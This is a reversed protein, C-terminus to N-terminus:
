SDIFRSSLIFGIYSHRHSSLSCVLVLLNVRLPSGRKKGGKWSPRRCDILYRIGARCFRLFVSISTYFVLHLPLHCTLHPSQRRSKLYQELTKWETGGGSSQRTRRAQNRKRKRRRGGEISGTHDCKIKPRERRSQYTHDCKM